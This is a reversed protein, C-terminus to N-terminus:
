LCLRFRKVKERLEKILKGFDVDESIVRKPPPDINDYCYKYIEMNKSGTLLPEDSMFKNYLKHIALKIVNKEQIFIVGLKINLERRSQTVFDIETSNQPIIRVILYDDEIFDIRM